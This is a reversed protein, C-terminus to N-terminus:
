DMLEFKNRVHFTEMRVVFNNCRRNEALAWGPTPPSIIRSNIKSIWEDVVSRNAIARGCLDFVFLHSNILRESAHKRTQPTAQLAASPTSVGKTKVLINPAISSLSVFLSLSLTFYPYYFYITYSRTSTKMQFIAEEEITTRGQYTLYNAKWQLM